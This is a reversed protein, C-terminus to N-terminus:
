QIGQFEVTLLLDRCLAKPRAKKLMRILRKWILDHSENSTCTQCYIRKKRGMKLLVGPFQVTVLGSNINKVNHHHPALVGAKRNPV